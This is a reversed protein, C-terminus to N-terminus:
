TGLGQLTFAAWHYPAAFRGGARLRLQARRLAAAVPLGDRLHLEYFARMLESTARDQVRWLSALVRSAGAHLFGRVLGMLGEGRLHRGLATQCGSLVVLDAGLELSFVDALDLFGDIPHGEGDFLSLVIGSLEPHRSNVLGHTAFHVIRSEAVAASMATARSADSDLAVLRDSRAILEGVVLAEERSFRLRGLSALGSEAASRLVERLVADHLGQEPAGPAEPRHPLRADTPMFIPDALVAAHRTAPPRGAARRRLQALVSASPLHVVETQACLPEGGAGPLAAFPVFLLGGAPVVYARRHVLRDVLDGFLIASLEASAVAFREDADHWRAQRAASTEGEPDRNRETLLAHLERARRDLEAAGPLPRTVLEDADVLFLHSTRTGLAVEVLVSGPDLAESRIHDLQLPQVRGAGHLATAVDATGISDRLALLEARVENAPRPPAGRDSDRAHHRRLEALLASERRRLEPDLTPRVEVEAERLTDLLGRALSREHTALAAAAHRPEGTLDLRAMHIDRGLEYIPMVGALYSSRLDISGVSERLEEALTMAQEVAATAEAHRGAALAARATGQWAAIQGAVQGSRTALALARAFREEAAAGDGAELALCGLEALAAAEGAADEAAAFLSHAEAIVAAAADRAGHSRHATGLQLLANALARPGALTRRIAVAEEAAAAGRALDGGDTAARGLLTLAAAEGSRAGLEREIALAKEAYMLAEAPEGLELYVTAMHQITLAEFPKSGSTRYMAVVRGLVGLAKQRRGMRHLLRGRSALAGAEAGSEGARAFATRAGEYADLAAQVDGLTELAGGLGALARGEVDLDSLSRASRAVAELEKASERVRGLECLTMAISYRTIAEGRADGAERRLPLAAEYCSLAERRAGRAWHINGINNLAVAEAQRDGLKRYGALAAAYHELAEDYEGLLRLAAGLDNRATAAGLENGTAALLPWAVVFAKRAPQPESLQLHISGTLLMARAIGHDDGAARYGDIARGLLAIAQRADAPGRSRLRMAELHLGSAMARERDRPGVPGQVRLSVTYHVDAPSRSTLELRYSGPSEAHIALVYRESAQGTGPVRAVTHGDPGLFAVDIMAGDIDVDWVLLESGLTHAEFTLVVDPEIAGTADQGGAITAMISAGAAM